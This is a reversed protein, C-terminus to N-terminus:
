LSHTRSSISCFVREYKEAIVDWNYHSLWEQPYTTKKVLLAKRLIRAYEDANEPHRVYMGFDGMIDRRLRDDPVVVPLGCAAAEIMSTGFAETDESVLTFVDASRYFAPMKSHPVVLREFRKGLTEKGYAAIQEDGGVLLLSANNVLAVADITLTVRKYPEPGAVCIIIPQSLPIATKKGQVSFAEIDVGNPIVDVTGRFVYKRMWAANKETLAIYGDPFSLISMRDKYGAQGSIVFTAGTLLCYMRALFAQWGRNISLIVDPKWAVMSSCVFCTYLFYRYGLCGNEIMQHATVFRNEIVVQTYTQKPRKLMNGQYVRVDHNKGWRSCLEDVAVEAGREVIGSAYSLVAIKM